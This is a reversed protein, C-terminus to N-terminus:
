AAVTAPADATRADLADHLANLAAYLADVDPVPAGGKVDAVISELRSLISADEATQSSKNTDSKNTDDKTTDDKPRAARKKEPAPQVAGLITMKAAVSSVAHARKVAARINERGEKGSKYAAALTVYLTSFAGNADAAVTDFPIGADLMAVVGNRIQSIRAGTVGTEEAITEVPVSDVAHRVHAWLARDFRATEMNGRVYNSSMAVNAPTRKKGTVFKVFSVRTINKVTSM